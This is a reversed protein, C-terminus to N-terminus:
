GCVPKMAVMNEAFFLPLQVGKLLFECAGKCPGICASFPLCFIYFWAIFFAVPWGVFVLGLFWLIGWLVGPCCDAKGKGEGQGEGIGKGEGM